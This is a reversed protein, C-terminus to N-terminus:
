PPWATDASLSQAGREEPSSHVMAGWGDVSAVFTIVLIRVMTAEGALFSGCLSSPVVPWLPQGADGYREMATRMFDLATRARESM